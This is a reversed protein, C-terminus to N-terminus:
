FCQLRDNIYDTVYIFGNRDVYIYDFDIKKECDQGFSAVYEGDTTFVFVCSTIDTVYVYQGRVCLGNPEKLEEKDHGISRLHVGYKTFIHVCSNKTDSVFLNQHIDVSISIVYMNSHKITSVHQLQKNYVEIIGVEAMFLKQDTIALSPRGSSDKEHEVEHINFKDGNDNCTLIKNSSEDICYINDEEDCAICCPNVLGSHKVLDVRKGEANFKVIDTASECLAM